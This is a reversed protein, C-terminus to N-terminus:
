QQLIGIKLNFGRIPKKNKSFVDITPVCDINLAFYSFLTYEQLAWNMIKRINEIVYITLVLTYGCDTNQTFIYFIYILKKVFCNFM